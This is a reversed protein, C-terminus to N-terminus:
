QWFHQDLSIETTIFWGSFYQQHVHWGAQLPGSQNKSFSQVIYQLKSYIFVSEM